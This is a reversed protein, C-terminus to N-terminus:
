REKQSSDNSLAITSGYKTPYTLSLAYAGIVVLISCVIFILGFIVWIIGLVVFIIFVPDTM